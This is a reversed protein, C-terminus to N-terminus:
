KTSDHNFVSLAVFAKYNDMEKISLKEDAKIETASISKLLKNTVASIIRNQGPDVEVNVYSAKMRSSIIKPVEGQSVCALGKPNKLVCCGLATKGQEKSTNPRKLTVRTRKKPM